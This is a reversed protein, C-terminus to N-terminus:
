CTKTCPLGCNSDDSGGLIIQLLEGSGRKISRGHFPLGTAEVWVSKVLATLAAKSNDAPRHRPPKMLRAATASSRETRRVLMALLRVREIGTPPLMPLGVPPPHPDRDADSAASLFKLAEGPLGELETVLAHCAKSLRRLRDRQEKPAEAATARQIPIGVYKARLLTNVADNLKRPSLRPANARLIQTIKEREAKEIHGRREVNDFLKTLRNDFTPM